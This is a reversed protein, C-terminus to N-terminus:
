IQATTNQAINVLALSAPGDIDVVVGELLRHLRTIAFQADHALQLATDSWPKLWKKAVKKSHRLDEIRDMTALCQASVPSPKFAWVQELFAEAQQLEQQVQQLMPHQQVAMWLQTAIEAM